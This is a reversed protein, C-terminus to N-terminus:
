SGLAINSELHLIYNIFPDNNTLQKHHQKLTSAIDQNSPNLHINDTWKKQFASLESDLSPEM